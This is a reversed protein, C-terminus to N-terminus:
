GHSRPRKDWMMRRVLIFVPLLGILVLALSPVSALYWDGESTYEYVKVALTDWGFPRLLLTAPMEKMIDVFVLIGASFIGPTLLPLLIRFIFSRRKVKMTKAVEFLAPRIRQINTQIPGYAVTMFRIIYALVLAALTGLFVQNVGIPKLLYALVQDLWNFWLMVGVALISGPFLYGFTSLRVFLNVWNRKDQYSCFALFLSVGVVLLSSGGALCVSKVLRAFFGENLVQQYHALAWILLQCVPLIFSAFLILLCIAQAVWSKPGKLKVRRPFLMKEDQSVGGKGLFSKELWIILLVFMLLGTSLQAATNLSFFGYWAKYIATTFTDYNFISVAGFDALAEMLAFTSGTVIAPKGLPLAVKFFIRTSSYGLSQASEYLHDGQSLFASRALVYVYPYFVLIFCVIVGGRSRVEPFFDSTGFWARVWTQVVGAYDLEAVYVFALVYAPMALPLVLAWEYVKSGRFEFRATLWALLTGLVAVGCSVGVALWVTNGLLRSMQSTLLHMWLDTDTQRWSLFLFALPMLLIICVCVALWSYRWRASARRLRVRSVGRSDSANSSITINAAM